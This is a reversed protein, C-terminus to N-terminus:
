KRRGNSVDKLYRRRMEDVGVHFLEEKWDDANWVETFNGNGAILARTKIRAHDILSRPLSIQDNEIIIDVAGTAFFRSLMRNVPIDMPLSNIFNEFDKYEDVTFIFVCGDFGKTAVFYDQPTIERDWFVDTSITQGDSSILQWKRNLQGNSGKASYQWM